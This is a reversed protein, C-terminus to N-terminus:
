RHVSEVPRFIADLDARDVFILKSGFRYAPLHGARIMRRLTLVSVGAEAAAVALPMRTSM